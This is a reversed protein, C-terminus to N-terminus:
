KCVGCKAETGDITAMAIKKVGLSHLWEVAAIVFKADAAPEKVQKVDHDHTVTVTSSEAVLHATSLRLSRDAFADTMNLALGICGFQLMRSRVLHAVM